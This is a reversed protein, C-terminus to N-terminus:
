ARNFSSPVPGAAQLERFLVKYEEMLQRLQHLYQRNDQTKQQAHIRSCGVIVPLHRVTAGALAMRLWLDYDMAYFLHEKIYAGSALWSRRSFFVDPQFFYNGAQWSGMFRLIDLPLLKATLGLPLVTHHRQHVMDRTEGIRVCGGAILDAGYRRYAKGIHKLSGPELL